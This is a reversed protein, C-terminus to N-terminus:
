SVEELWAQFMPVDALSQLYAAYQLGGELAQIAETENTIQNKVSVLM